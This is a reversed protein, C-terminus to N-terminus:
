ALCSAGAFGAMGSGRCLQTLFRAILASNANPQPQISGLLGYKRGFSGGSRRFHAAVLVNWDIRCHLSHVNFVLLARSDSVAFVRLLYESLRM